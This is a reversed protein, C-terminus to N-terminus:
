RFYDSCVVFVDDVNGIKCGEVCLGGINVISCVFGFYESEVFFDLLFEFVCVFGLGNM